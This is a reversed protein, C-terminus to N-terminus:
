PAFGLSYCNSRSNKIRQKDENSTVTSQQCFVLQQARHPRIGM